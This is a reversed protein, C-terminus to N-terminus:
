LGLKMCTSTDPCAYSLASRQLLDAPIDGRPIQTFGWRAAFDAATNTLLYTATAREKRSQALAYDVLANGLGQKRREGLVVLSRLMAAAGSLEMGIVGGVSGADAVFFTSLREAVGDTPLGNESLLKEISPLDAAM